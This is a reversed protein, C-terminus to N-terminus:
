PTKTSTRSYRQFLLWGFTALMLAILLSGPLPAQIVVALILVVVFASFGKAVTSKPEQKAATEMVITAFNLLVHIVALPWWVALFEPDLLPAAFFVMNGILMPHATISYPFSTIHLAEIQGLEYGYYTREGGLKLAASANLAFGVAMIILVILNPGSLILAWAFALMSLTKLWLGDAKFTAVSVDRLLFTLAYVSYHWFSVAYIVTAMDSTVLGLIAIVAMLAMGKLWVASPDGVFGRIDSM